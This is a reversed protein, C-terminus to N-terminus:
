SSTFRSITARVTESSAHRPHTTDARAHWLEQSGMRAHGRKLRSSSASAELVALRTRPRPKGPM